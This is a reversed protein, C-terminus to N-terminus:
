RRELEHGAFSGVGPGLGGVFLVACLIGVVLWGLSRPMSVPENSSQGIPLGMMWVLVLPGLVAARLVWSLELPSLLAALTSVILATLFASRTLLELRAQGYPEQGFLPQWRPPAAIRMGVMCVGFGVATMVIKWVLNPELGQVFHSWDGYGFFPGILLYSGAHFLNTGVFLWAFYRTAPSLRLGSSLVALVCLAAFLNATSGAAVVLRYSWGDVQDCWVETTSAARLDGGVLVCAGGHGVVEHVVTVAVWSVTAIAVLTPIHVRVHLQRDSVAAKLSM